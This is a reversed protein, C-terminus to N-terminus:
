SRRYRRHEVMTGIIAGPNEADIVLTPWDPNLPVLDIMDQGRSDQGRLRYKKFTARQDKERKAVVCEGPRPMVNPDIIVKDGPRFEPAMSDGEIVLAFAHPGVPADSSLFDEGGGPAYPDQVEAWGGAQVRDIVPISASTTRPGGDVISGDSMPGLGALLWDLRVAFLRALEALRHGGPRTRDGEWQSIAQSSIGFHEAVQRQKMGARERARELRKGLSKMFRM